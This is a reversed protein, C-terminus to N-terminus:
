TMALYVTAKRALDAIRSNQQDYERKIDKKIEAPM